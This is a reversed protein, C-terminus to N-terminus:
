RQRLELVHARRRRASGTMRHRSPAAPDVDAAALREHGLAGVVRVHNVDEVGTRQGDRPSGTGSMAYGLDLIRLVRRALEILGLRGLLLLLLLM